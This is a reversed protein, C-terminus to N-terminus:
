IAFREVLHKELQGRTQPVHGYIRNWVKQTEMCLYNPVDPFAEDVLNKVYGYLEERIDKFYRLKGDQSPFIEGFMIKSKPFRNIVIDKLGSTFRLSGLSIWAIEDSDFQTRLTDILKKYEEKWNPLALLPDFHFGIPYGKDAIWRAAELREKISATKLEEQEGYTQPNLSWSVVTKKQHDLDLLNEVCNSKTKLELLLNKQKAVFPILEKTLHTVSDLALSDALEGTGLRFFTQPHSNIQKQIAQFIEEMNAFITIMPNNQLYDQLICYSCEFHCNSSFSVTFYNCCVYDGTGQCKKIVEGDHRTILLQQKAQTMPLYKKILSVDRIIESPINYFHQLIIKTLPLEKVRDDIYIKIPRFPQMRQYTISIFFFTM